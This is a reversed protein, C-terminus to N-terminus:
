RELHHQQSGSSTSSVSATQAAKEEKSKALKETAFNSGSSKRQQKHKTRKDIEEQLHGCCEKLRDVTNLNRQKEAEFTKQKEKLASVKPSFHRDLVFNTVLSDVVRRVEERLRKNAREAELLKRVLNNVDIYNTAWRGMEERLLAEGRGGESASGGCGLFRKLSTVDFGAEELETQVMIRERADKCTEVFRNLFRHVHLSQLTVCVHVYPMIKVDDRSWSTGSDDLSTSFPDKSRFLSHM